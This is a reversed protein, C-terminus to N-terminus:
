RCPGTNAGAAPDLWGVILTAALCNGLPTFHRDIQFFLDRHQPDAQYFQAFGPTLDLLPIDNTKAFSTLHTAPRWLDFASPNEKVFAPMTEPQALAHTPVLVMAFRAGREAAAAKMKLLLAETIRWATAWEPTEQVSFIMAERPVASRDPPQPTPTAAPQSETQLSRSLNGAARYVVSNLNLWSRVNAVRGFIEIMVVAIAVGVCAAFLRGRWGRWVRTLANPGPQGGEPLSLAEAKM